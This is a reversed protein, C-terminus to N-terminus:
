AEETDLQALALRLTQPVLDRMWPHLRVVSPRQYRYRVAMDIFSLPGALRLAELLREPPVLGAFRAVYARELRQTVERSSLRPQFMGLGVILPALSIFPHGIAVDEWDIIACTADDVLFNGPWLDGHELTLPIGCAALRECRRRLEPGYAHLRDVEAASLGDPEGPRLATVDASLPEIEAALADLGRTPCGLAHLDGVREVCALQLQGYVAAAREWIMVDSVDELKGGELATMLFWRREPKTAVIRAVADPFHQALYETVPCERRVSEAVAKFYFTGAGTRVLLVCSSTWARLQVIERVERVGADGLARELWGCVEEFWGPLTWERGDVAARPAADAALWEAIVGADEGDAGSALDDLGCWRMGSPLPAGDGHAELEHIRVVVDVLPDSHRLSRLVTTRLGFREQVALNIYDVEATHRDHSAFAPLRLRGADSVLLIAPKSPHRSILRHNIQLVTEGRGAGTRLLSGIGSAITDRM